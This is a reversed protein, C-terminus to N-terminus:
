NSFLLFLEWPYLVKIWEYKQKEKKYMACFYVNNIKYKEKFYRLPSVYKNLFNIKIEIPAINNKNEIIFDIEQGQNTRWFFLDDINFIKRLQSFVSNELMNGTIVKPLTKFNLLNMIGTDEFYIKPMKTLESRINKHFPYILKIIYTNELIFLYEEITQKALGLSNSLESINLLNGSQSSLFRILQNFKNLNKINSIDRIDKRIYTNIIQKLKIEKKEIENELVIGPYSGTYLFEEYLTRLENHIQEPLDKTFFYKKDKFLLFEEFDLGFLEFDIIRGVLSDKFKSKIAFSSSGSVILKIKSQYKDFFLKLFSSPNNLYQIEDILLYIKKNFDCGKGKLFNIVNQIGNNCLELLEFDELDLYLINKQNNNKIIINNILYHLLTTKGVQRAGHIVLIENDDIFPKIRDIIKRYYVKHNM